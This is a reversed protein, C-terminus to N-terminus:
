QKLFLVSIKLRKKTRNKKIKKRGKDTVAQGGAITVVVSLPDDEVVAVFIGCAGVQCYEM